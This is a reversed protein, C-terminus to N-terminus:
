TVVGRPNSVAEVMGGAAGGVFFVERGKSTVAPARTILPHQATKQIRFVAQDKKRRTDKALGPGSFIRM